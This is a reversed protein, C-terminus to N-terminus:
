NESAVTETESAESNATPETEATTLKIFIDELSMTSAHLELLGWGNQVIAKAVERRVDHKTESEVKLRIRGDLQSVTKVASVGSVNRLKSVVEGTPGEVEVSIRDAGQVQSRLNLPGVANGDFHFTRCAFDDRLKSVYRAHRGDFGNRLQISTNAQLNLAFGFVVHPAFYGFRDHLVSPTQEFQM